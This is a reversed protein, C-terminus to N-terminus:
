RATMVKRSNLYLSCLSFEKVEMVFLYYTSMLGLLWEEVVLALAEVM